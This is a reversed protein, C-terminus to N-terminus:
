GGDTVGEESLLTDRVAHRYAEPFSQWAHVWATTDLQRIIARAIYYGAFGVAVAFAYALRNM